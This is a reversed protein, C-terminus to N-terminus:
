SFANDISVVKSDKLASITVYGEYSGFVADKIVREKEKVAVEQLHGYSVVVGNDQKIHMSYTKDTEQQVHLVIGDFGNRAQNTGNTYQNDQILTYTSATSVPMTDYSFWNEFPLWSGINEIPLYKLVSNIEVLQLKQNLLLVLAVLCVGMMLMVTHYFLRFLLFPRHSKEEGDFRRNKIRDRAKKIDDM